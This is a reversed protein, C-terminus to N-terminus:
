SSMSPRAPRSAARAEAEAAGDGRRHLEAAPQPARHDDGADLGLRERRAGLLPEGVEGLEGGLREGVGLRAVCSAAERARITSAPSASRRRSSRLRCSPACCRSTESASLRRSAARAQSGSSSVERSANARAPSSSAWASSSSRSSARPMWGATSLSRPSSGAISASAARAATGTRTRPRARPARQGLRDLGRGVVDDGLRQGVRGLVRACGLDRHPDRALVSEREDLDGVVADATGRM